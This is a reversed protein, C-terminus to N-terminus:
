GVTVELAVYTFQLMGLCETFGVTYAVDVELTSRGACCKREKLGM